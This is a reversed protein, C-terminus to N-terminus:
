FLKVFHEKPSGRDFNSFIAVFSLFLFVHLRYRKRPWHVMKLVIDCFQEKPSGRGFNSFDNWEM